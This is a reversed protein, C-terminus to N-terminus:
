INTPFCFSIQRLSHNITKDSLKSRVRQNSKQVVNHKWIINIDESAINFYSFDMYWCLEFGVPGM